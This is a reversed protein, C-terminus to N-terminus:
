GIYAGDEFFDLGDALLFFLLQLLAELGAQQEHPELAYADKSSAVSVKEKRLGLV